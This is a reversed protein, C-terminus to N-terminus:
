WSSARARVLGGHVPQDLREALGPDHVGAVKTGARASSQNSSAEYGAGGGVRDAM